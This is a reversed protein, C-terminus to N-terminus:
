YPIPASSAAAPASLPQQSPASQQSAQGSATSGVSENSSPMTAVGSGGPDNYFRWRMAEDTPPPADSMGGGRIAQSRQLASLENVGPETAATRGNSRLRAAETETAKSPTADAAPLSGSAFEARSDAAELWSYDEGIYQRPPIFSNIASSPPMMGGRWWYASAGTSPRYYSTRWSSSTHPIPEPKNARQLSAARQEGSFPLRSRLGAQDNGMQACAESATILMASCILLHTKM